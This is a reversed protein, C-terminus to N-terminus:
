YLGTLTGTTLGTTRVQVIRMQPLSPVGKTLTIIVPTTSNELVVKANGNASAVLSLVVPSLKAGGATVATIVTAYSLAPVLVNNPNNPDAVATAQRVSSGTTM